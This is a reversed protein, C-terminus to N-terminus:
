SEKYGCKKDHCALFTGKKKTTKEVMIPAGCAPCAKDVPKDWTAFSCEPFRNCGYFLKGRKSRKEVLEGDCGPEPCAVGTSSGAGHGNVSQTNKCEPYGSCALFPGYRGQKIVMPKGCKECTKDSIEDKPIEVPEIHGKEDRTYNRTYTCDPYGNCALYHGNRGVKIHLNHKGCEPCVRGTDVGVGRMSLMQESATDLEKQFTGYFRSMLTQYQADGTEIRDLNDELRATFDVDFVDPFNAVLLDNVIFGLENPRFYGRVLDM